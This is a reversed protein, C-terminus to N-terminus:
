GWLGSSTGNSTLIIKQIYQTANNIGPDITLGYTALVAVSAWLFLLTLGKLLGVTRSELLSKSQFTKM